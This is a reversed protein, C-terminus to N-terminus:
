PSERGALYEDHREAANVPLGSARGALELLDESLSKGTQTQAAADDNALLEVRVRAGNPLDAPEDLIVAGDEVHGRFIM